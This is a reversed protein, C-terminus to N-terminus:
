SNTSKKLFCEQTSFHKFFHTLPHLTKYPHFVYYFGGFNFNKNQYHPSHNTKRTNILALANIIHSLLVNQCRFHYMIYCTLFEKLSGSEEGTVKHQMGYFTLHFSKAVNVIQVSIESNMTTASTKAFARSLFHQFSFIGLLVSPKHDRLCAALMREKSM